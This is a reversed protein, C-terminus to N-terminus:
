VTEPEVQESDDHEGGPSLENSHSWALAYAYAKTHLSDCNGFLHILGRERDRVADM